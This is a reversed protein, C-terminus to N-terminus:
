TLRRSHRCRSKGDGREDDSSTPPSFLGNKTEKRGKGKKRRSFSNRDQGRGERGGFEGGRRGRGIDGTTISM